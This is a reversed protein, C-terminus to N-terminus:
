YEWSLLYDQIRPFKYNMDVGIRVISSCKDSEV